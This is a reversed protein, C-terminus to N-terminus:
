PTKIRGHDQNINAIARLWWSAIVHFLMLKDYILPVVKPIKHVVFVLCNFPWAAAETVNNTNVSQPRFFIVVM